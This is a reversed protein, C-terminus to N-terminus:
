LQLREKLEALEALRETIVRSEHIREQREKDLADSLRQRELVCERSEQELRSIQETFRENSERLSAREFDFRLRDRNQLWNFFSSVLAMLVTIVTAGTQITSSDTMDALM